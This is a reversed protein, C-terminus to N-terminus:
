EFRFGPIVYKPYIKKQACYRQFTDEDPLTGSEINLARAELGTMVLASDFGSQNAGLVDTRLSDGLALIQDKKLGYFKKLASTYIAPQPKGHYSVKGGIEEYRQALAGACLVETGNTIVSIDPNVCIMLLDRELAEQLVVDHQAIVLNDPGTNLIFDAEGISDSLSLGLDELLGGHRPSTIPYCTGKKLTHHDKLYEYADEGSSHAVKYLDRSIGLNELQAEILHSRRPANSLLVIQKGHNNLEELCEIVGDFPKFGDHVVGWLDLLYGEYFTFLERMSMKYEM